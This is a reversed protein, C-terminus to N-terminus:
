INCSMDLRQIRMTDERKNDHQPSMGRDIGVHKYQSGGVNKKTMCTITGDVCTYRDYM